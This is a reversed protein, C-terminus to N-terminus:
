FSVVKPKKKVVANRSKALNRRLALTLDDEEPEAADEVRGIRVGNDVASTKNKSVDCDREIHKKSGCKNCSGGNPYMGNENEPCQSAIHGISKCVFCNAFKFKSEGLM